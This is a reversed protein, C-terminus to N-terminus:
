KEHCHKPKYKITKEMQAGTKLTQSPAEMYYTAMSLLFDELM